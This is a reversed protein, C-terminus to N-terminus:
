LVKVFEGNDPRFGATKLYKAHAETTGSAILRRIGATKLEGYLFKGVSCDRYRTTSYDLAVRLDDGARSGILVGVPDTGAYVLYVQDEPRPTFDYEPFYRLIDERCCSLFHRLGSEGPDASCVSFVARSRSLRILYYVNILILCLNMLATPYSGITLAYVVYILSGVSNIIRLKVVSNMLLSVLVLLSALYGVLEWFLEPSM